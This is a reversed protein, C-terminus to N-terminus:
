VRSKNRAVFKCTIILRLFANFFQFFNTGFYGNQQFMYKFNITWNPHRVWVQSGARHKPDPVAALLHSPCSDPEPLMWKTESRGCLKRQIYLVLWAM